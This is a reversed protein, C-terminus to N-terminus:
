DSPQAAAESIIEDTSAAWLQGAAASVAAFGAIWTFYRM